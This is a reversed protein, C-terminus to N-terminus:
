VHARGIQGATKGTERCLLRSDLVHFFRIYARLIRVINESSEFYLIGKQCVFSEINQVSQSWIEGIDRRGRGKERLSDGGDEGKDPDGCPSLPTGAGSAPKHFQEPDKEARLDGLVLILRIGSFRAGPTM